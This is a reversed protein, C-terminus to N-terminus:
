ATKDKDRLVNPVAHNIVDEDPLWKKKLKFLEDFTPCFM